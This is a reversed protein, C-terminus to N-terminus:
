VGGGQPGNREVDLSVMLTREGMDRRARELLGPHEGLDVLFSIRAVWRVDEDGECFMREVFALVRRVTEPQEGTELLSIMHPSIAIGFVLHCSWEDFWGEALRGEVIPRLEPVADLFTRTLSAYTISGPEAM